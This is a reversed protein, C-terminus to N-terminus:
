PKRQIVVLTRDDAQNGRELLTLHTIVAAPFNEVDDTWWGPLHAALAELGFQDRDRVEFEYLGDTGLVAVVGDAMPLIENEYVTDPLVGIPMGTKLEPYSAAGVQGPTFCLPAPHGASAVQVAGGDPPLSAVLTTIFMNSQSLDPTLLRNMESLLAAPDHALDFRARVAARLHAGLMAASVGKGMVDAILVILHGDDTQFVDFFDGGVWQASKCSGHVEWSRNSPLNTPLLSQQIQAAIELERTERLQQERLLRLRNNTFAVGVFGAITRVINTQGATFPLSGRRGATFLGIPETNFSIPCIIVGADWQSVGDGPKLGEGHAVAQLLQKTWVSKELTGPIAAPLPIAESARDHHVTWGTPEEFIRVCVMDAEILTRVRLLVDHLFEKFTASTALLASINFLASLSEYSDSLDQTMLLLEEEVKAINPAQAAVSTQKLLLLSHGLESNTHLVDDFYSSIIFGGRGSEALPDEPLEAWGPPPTFHGPDRIEIELRRENWAWRLRLRADPRDKAGHIIGNNVGEAVALLLPGFDENPFARETLYVKMKDLAAAVQGLDPLFEYEAGERYFSGDTM